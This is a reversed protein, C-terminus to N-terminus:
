AGDSRQPVGGAGGAAMEPAADDGSAAESEKATGSEKPAGAEAAPGTERVPGPAARKEEEPSPPVWPGQRPFVRTLPGGISDALQSLKPAYYGLFLRLVERGSTVGLITIRMLRRASFLWLPSIMLSLATVAVILNAGADGIIGQDAGVGGLVFSFEGIQALLIGTIVAHAWPQGAIRLAAVNLVTKFVVVILLILLVALLNAAIFSLDILLGVSLFFAMILLSQIPRITRLMSPRETSNGITLGALFAGYAPSLGMFGTLASAAFCFALGRLPMLDPDHAAARAFPLRIKRRRTLYVILLVLVAISAAIKALGLWDFSHGALQRVVLIMPVFALDQAILVGITIQAVATRLINMNELMKIVVATSSLAIVFGLLIALSTPWGLWGAVVLMVGVGGAIQVATAVLAPRWVGRFGRLSLEMGIVFLLLIVGLAALGAIEHRDTVFGLGSPGLLIGALIYGVIAPQKLRTMLIGCLVAVLISLALGTLGPLSLM